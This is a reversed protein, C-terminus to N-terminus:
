KDVLMPYFLKLQEPSGVAYGSYYYFTSGLDIGINALYQLYQETYPLITKFNGTRLAINKRTRISFGTDFGMIYLNNRFIKGPAKPGMAPYGESFGVGSVFVAINNEYVVNQIPWSVVKAGFEVGGWYIRGMRAGLYFLYNNNARVNALVGSSDTWLEFPTNSYEIVNNCWEINKMSGHGQSTIATDWTHSIHNNAVYFGDITNWSEIANGMRVSSKSGCSIVEGGIFSFECNTVSYGSRAEMGHRGSYKIAINDFTVDKTDGFVPATIAIGYRALRITEFVDAPNGDNCRLYLKNNYQDFYYELNKRLSTEITKFTIADRYFYELGNTWWGVDTTKRGIPSNVAENDKIEQEVLVRM